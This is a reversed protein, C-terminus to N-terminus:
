FVLLHEILFPVEPVETELLSVRDEGKPQHRGDDTEGGIVDQDHAVRSGLQKRKEGQEKGWGKMSRMFTM